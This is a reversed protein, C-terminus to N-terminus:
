LKEKEGEFLSINKHIGARTWSCVVKHYFWHYSPCHWVGYASAKSLDAKLNPIYSSMWIFKCRFFKFVKRLYM